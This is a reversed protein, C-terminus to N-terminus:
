DNASLLANKQRLVLEKLYCDIGKDTFYKYRSTAINFDLVEDLILVYTHNGNLEEEVIIADINKKLLKKRKKKAKRLSTLRAFQITTSFFQAEERKTKKLNQLSKLDTINHKKIYEAQYDIPNLPYGGNQYQQLTNYLIETTMLGQLRFLEDGNQNLVLIVPLDVIKYEDFWEKSAGKGEHAKINVFEKNMFATLRKDRFAGQELLKCPLCWDASFSVVINRKEIKAVGKAKSMSYDRFSIEALCSFSVLLSLLVLSFKTKKMVTDLKVPSRV